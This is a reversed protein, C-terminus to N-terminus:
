YTVKTYMIVPVAKGNKFGPTWLPMNKFVRAIDKQIKTELFPDAGVTSITGVSSITLQIELAKKPKEDDSFTGKNKNIYEQLAAKGGPFQPMVDVRSKDLLSDPTKHLTLAMTQEPHDPNMISVTKRANTDKKQANSQMFLTLLLLVVTSSVVLTKQMIMNKSKKYLMTIRNKLPHHFFHHVLLTPTQNFAIAEVLNKVYNDTEIQQVTLADAEFEHQLEMEKHYLYIFPNFWLFAQLISFYFKDYSHKLLVHAQEHTLITRLVEKNRFSEPIFINKFFSFPTEIHSNFYVENKSIKEASSIRKLRTIIYLGFAIRVIGWLMGMLLLILILQIYDIEKRQIVNGYVILNDLTETYFTPSSFPQESTSKQLGTFSILPIIVSSLSTCLLYIRNWRFSKQQRLLTAYLMYFIGLLLITKLFYLLM